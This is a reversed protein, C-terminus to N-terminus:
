AAPPGRRPIWAAPEVGRSVLATLVIVAVPEVAVIVSPAVATDAYRAIALLSACTGCEHDDPSAPAPDDAPRDSAPDTEAPPAPEGHHHCCGHGCTSRAVDSSGTTSAALHGAHGGHATLHHFLHAAGTQVLLIAAVLAPISFAQTSLAQTTPRQARARMVDAHYGV